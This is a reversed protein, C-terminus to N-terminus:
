VYMKAIDLLIEEETKEQDIGIDKKAADTQRKAKEEEYLKKYDVAEEKDEAPDEKHDEAPEEEASDEKNDEAPKKEAPDTKQDEAPIDMAMFERIDAPTFGQKALAIIDTFKM